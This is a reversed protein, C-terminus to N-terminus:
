KLYLRMSNKISNSIYLDLKQFLQDIQVVVFTVFSLVKSSLFKMFNFLCTIKLTRTKKRFDM